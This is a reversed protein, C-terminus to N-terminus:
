KITFIMKNENAYKEAISDKEGIINFDVVPYSNYTYTFDYPRTYGFAKDKIVIVDNPVCVKRLSNCEEFASEGIIKLSNPFQVKSLKACGFFAFDDIKELSQPFIVSSLKGCGAFM